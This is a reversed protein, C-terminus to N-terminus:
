HLPYRTMYYAKDHGKAGFGISIAKTTVSFHESLELNTLSCITMARQIVIDFNHWKDYGFLPVLDRASWYDAGYHSIQKISEFDPSQAEMCLGKRVSVM